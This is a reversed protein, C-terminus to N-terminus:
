QDLHLIKAEHSLLKVGSKTQECSLLDCQESLQM